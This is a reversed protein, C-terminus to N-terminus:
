WWTPDRPPSCSGTTPSSRRRGLPVPPDPDIPQPDALAVLRVRGAAQLEAIRRRHWRGHGNAGILAVTTTM